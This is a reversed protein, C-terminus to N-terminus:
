QHEDSISNKLRRLRTLVSSGLMSKILNGPLKSSFWLSPRYKGALLLYRRSPKLKGTNYAALGIAYYATGYVQSKLSRIQASEDRQFVKQILDIVQQANADIDIKEASGRYGVPQVGLALEYFLDMDGARAPDIQLSKYLNEVGAQWNGGRQISTILFYRYLGSYAARKEPRWRDYAGDDDGFRKEIVAQKAAHMGAVNASLSQEHVRYYVLVDETGIFKKDAAESQGTKSLIRLWLDWDECSRLNPDFCNLDVLTQRRITITSPILFNSKLLTGLLNDQMKGARGVIQPLKRGATDMCQAASYFVVAQPHENALSVISQLYEPLWIDDSDLLGILEGKATRIGTNRAGALGRNEQYIYRIKDGYNKAIAATEDTSGDDVVIIERYPYTQALASEISLRLYQAQNYAPIIISVLPSAPM